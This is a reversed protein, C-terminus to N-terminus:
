KRRLVSNKNIKRPIKPKHVQKYDRLTWEKLGKERRMANFSEFKSLIKHIRVRRFNAYRSLRMKIEHREEDAEDSEAKNEATMGFSGLGDIKIHDKRKIHLILKKFFLGVILMVESGSIKLGIGDSELAIKRCIEALNKPGSYTKVKGPLLSTKLRFDLVRYPKKM